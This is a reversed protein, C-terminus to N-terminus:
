LHRTSNFFNVYPAPSLVLETLSCNALQYDMWREPASDLLVGLLVAMAAGHGVILVQAHEANAHRDHIERIAPVIRNSVDDLSEGGPPTFRTDRTAQRVFDHQKALQEFRLGEWDGIAYESLADLTVPDLKLGDSVKLATARARQLPSTYVAALEPHFRALHKATRAAQRRGRWTLPADTSGHWRGQRNAQIQGHRLLLLSTM